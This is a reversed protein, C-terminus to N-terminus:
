KKHIKQCEGHYGTHLLVKAKESMPNGLFTEYLRKIEFNDLSNRSVRQRDAQYLSRIREERICDPVPVVGGGPQGAGSICGGPCTMVEVFDYADMRGSDILEEAAVTGYVVAIHVDRGGLPVVAEKIQGLGRVPRYDLLLETPGSGTVAPYAMRLAAEMVGGTNGFILGAGSGEGMLPDFDSPELGYFDIGQADIWQALEQTTLVYDNDRMGPIGLFRGAFCMEERAIEAKKATCPAVAVNVIRRPDIGREEAFYTKILAGQMSIPSKATSLNATLEPHFNEVYKVWAPCCSTFQPLTGSAGLFRSLFETGEEMITLDASFAVDLVYDAGLQRIASVMPGEVFDGKRGGFCEGLAVRVSPATSFIVTKGPDAIERAVNRWSCKGKIAGEPCVAACQGCNICIFRDAPLNRCHGAVGIEERCVALCHSCGACLSEDKEISPNDPSVPVSRLEMDAM